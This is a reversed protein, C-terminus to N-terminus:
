GNTGEEEDSFSDVLFDIQAKLRKLDEPKVDTGSILLTAKVGRKVSLVWNQPPILSAGAPLKAGGQPPPTGTIDTQMDANEEEPPSTYAGPTLKAFQMTSKFVSIFRDVSGPNFEKQFILFDRFTADSPLGEKYQSLVDRFINPMQASKQRLAAVEAEDSKNLIQFALDSVRYANAQYDLLGFQRLASVVRGSTGTKKQGYGLHGLLVALSTPNKKDENWVKRVKAIATELPIIPFNPSRDISKGGAAEPKTPGDAAAKEDVNTAM